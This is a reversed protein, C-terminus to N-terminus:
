NETQLALTSLASPLTMGASLMNALQVSLMVLDETKVRGFRRLADDIFSLDLGTKNENISTITFGSKILMEGLVDASSAEMSKKIKNGYKDIGQYIFIPM